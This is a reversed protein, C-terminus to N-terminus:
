NDGTIRNWMLTNTVQSVSLVSASLFNRIHLLQLLRKQSGGLAQLCDLALYNIGGIYLLTFILLLPNSAVYAWSLILFFKRTSFVEFPLL